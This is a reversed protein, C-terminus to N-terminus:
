VRKGERMARNFLERTIKMDALLEVKDEETRIFAARRRIEANFGSELQRRENAVANNKTRQAEWKARRSDSHDALYTM